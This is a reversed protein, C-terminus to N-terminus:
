KALRPDDTAICRAQPTKDLLKIWADAQKTSTGKSLFDQRLAAMDTDTRKAGINAAVLEQRRDECDKASDFSQAIDWGSYFGAPHILHAFYEGWAEAVKESDPPVM